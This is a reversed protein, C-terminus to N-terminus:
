RTNRRLPSHYDMKYFYRAMHKITEERTRHLKVQNMNDKCYLYYYRTDVGDIKRLRGTVQVNAKASGVSITNIVTILNPIDVGTGASGLTSFSIDSTILNDYEDEGVYRNIKLKPYKKRFYKTALTCMSITAFYVVCKDGKRRRKIYAEEIFHEVMEIYGKLISPYNMLSQEFTTHSYGQSSKDRVRISRDIHYGVAFVDIYRDFKVLNTIRTNSPFLMDQFKKEDDQNSIFTASLGIVKRVNSYMIVKSLAGLEQHSEDSLLTGIKLHNFLLQPPVSVDEGDEYKKIYNSMTRMSFIIIDYGEGGHEILEELKDGGQVVFVRESPIDTYLKVDNIWKEIYKPLLVIGTRYGLKTIANFSIFTKGAGPKLDVLTYSPADKDVIAKFYLEQYDRLKYKGNMKGKMKALPIDKRFFINEKQIKINRNELERMCTVLVSIPFFFTNTSEHYYFYERDTEVFYRKAKYNYGRKLSTLWALFSSLPGRINVGYATLTFYTNYICVKVGNSM